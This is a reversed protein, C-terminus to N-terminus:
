LEVDKGAKYLSKIILVALLLADATIIFYELATLVNIVYPSAGQKALWRVLEGLGYAPLAIILFIISGFAAHTAFHVTAAFGGKHNSGNGSM